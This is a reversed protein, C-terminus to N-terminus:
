LPPFTSIAPKNAAIKSSAFNIVENVEQGM